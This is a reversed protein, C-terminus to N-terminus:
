ASPRRPTPGRAGQPGWWHTSRGPPPRSGDPMQWDICKRAFRGHIPRRTAPPIIGHAHAKIRSFRGSNRPKRPWNPPPTTRYPRPLYESIKGRVVTPKRETTGMPAYSLRALASREPRLPRVNSDHRGSKLSPLSQEMGFTSRTGAATKVGDCFRSAVSRAAPRYGTFTTRLEGNVGGSM